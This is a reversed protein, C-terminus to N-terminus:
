ASESERLDKPAELLRQKPARAGKAQRMAQRVLNLGERALKPPVAVGAERALERAADMAQALEGLSMPPGAAIAVPSGEGEWDLVRRELWQGVTLGERRAAMTVADRTSKAVSKITWPAVSDVPEDAVSQDEWTEFGPQSGDAASERLPFIGPARSRDSDVRRAFNLPPFLSGNTTLVAAM